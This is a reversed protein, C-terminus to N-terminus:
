LKLSFDIPVASGNNQKTGGARLGLEDLGGRGEGDGEEGERWPRRAM